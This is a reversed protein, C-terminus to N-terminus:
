GNASSGVRRAFVAHRSTRGLVPSISRRPASIALVAPDTLNLMDACDVDYARPTMPQARFPFGQQAELRATELRLSTYLTAVGPPNFQGGFRAAGAGSHPDFSLAPSIGPLGPPDAELTAAL